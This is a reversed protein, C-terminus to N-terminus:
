TPEASPRARASALRLVEETARDCSGSAGGGILIETALRFILARVACQVFDAEDSLTRFLSIPAHHFSVADVAVVAVSFPVPRWYVTPDIIAPPRGDFFLVNGTPDGHVLTSPAHVPRRAEVLPRLRPDDLLVPDGDEEWAFRDARAWAHTRDDLFAPRDMSALAGAFDVTATAVDAWRDPHPEGPLFPYAIWGEVELRGDATRRPLALRLRATDRLHGPITGLWDLEAPAVDCRKVVVGGARWVTAHGGRLRELPGDAGFADLVAPSPRM